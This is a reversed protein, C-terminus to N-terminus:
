IDGEKYPRYGDVFSDFAEELHGADITCNQCREFVCLWRAATEKNKPEECSNDAIIDRDPCFFEDENTIWLVKNVEAVTMNKLHTCVEKNEEKCFYCKAKKNTM